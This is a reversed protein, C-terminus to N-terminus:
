QIYRRQKWYPSLSHLLVNGLSEEHLSCFAGAGFQVVTTQPLPKRGIAFHLKLLAAAINTTKRNAKNSAVGHQKLYFFPLAARPPSCQNSQLFAPRVWVVARKWLREDEAPETEGRYLLALQV